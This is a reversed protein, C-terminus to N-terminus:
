LGNFALFNISISDLARTQGHAKPASLTPSFALITSSVQTDEERIFFPEDTAFDLFDQWFFRTSIYAANPIKLSGKMPMREKLYATPASDSRANTRQKIPRGLWNRAYGAQEGGNPIELFDGGAIYSVTVPQGATNTFSIRLDTFVRPADNAFTFFLNHNRVQVVLNLVTVGDLVQITTEDFGTMGSIAIYSLTQPGFSFGVFGATDTVVLSHDPNTIGTIPGVIAGVFISPTVGRLVNSTSIKM